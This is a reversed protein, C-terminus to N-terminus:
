LIFDNITRRIAQSELHGEQDPSEMRKPKKNSTWSRSPEDGNIIKGKINKENTTKRSEDKRDYYNKELSNNKRMNHGFYKLKEPPYKIL